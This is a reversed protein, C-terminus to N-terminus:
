HPETFFGTINETYLVRSDRLMSQCGIREKTQHDDVMARIETIADLDSGLNVPKGTTRFGKHAFTYQLHGAGKHTGFGLEPFPFM